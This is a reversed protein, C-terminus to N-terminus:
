RDKQGYDYKQKKEYDILRISNEFTHLEEKKKEMMKALAAKKKEGGGGMMEAFDSGASDKWNPDRM